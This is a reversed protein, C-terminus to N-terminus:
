QMDHPFQILSLPIRMMIIIIITIIAHYLTINCGESSQYAMVIDNSNWLLLTLWDQESKM